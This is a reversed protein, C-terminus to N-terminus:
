PCAASTIGADHCSAALASNVSCYPGACCAATPAAICDLEDQCTFYGADAANPGGSVCSAGGYGGQGTPNCPCCPDPNANCAFGGSAVSTTTSGGTTGTTGAGGTSSTGGAGGTGGSVHAACGGALGGALAIDRLRRRWSM